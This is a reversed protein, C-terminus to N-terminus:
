GGLSAVWDDISAPTDRIAVVGFADSPIEVFATESWLGAEIAVSSRGHGSEGWEVYSRLEAASSFQASRYLAMEGDRPVVQGLEGNAAVIIVSPNVLDSADGFAVWVTAFPAVDIPDFVLYEPKQCLAYGEL